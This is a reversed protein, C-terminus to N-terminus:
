ASMFRRLWATIQEVAKTVNEKVVPDNIDGRNVWGHVVDLYSHTESETNGGAQLAAFLEGGARYSDPDNKAPLLLTPVQVKEMVTVSSGGFFRDELTVSPHAGASCVVSRALAPEGLM